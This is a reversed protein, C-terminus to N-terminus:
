LVGNSQGKQFGERQMHVNLGKLIPVGEAYVPCSQTTGITDKSEVSTEIYHSMNSVLRKM